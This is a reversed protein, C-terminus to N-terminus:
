KKEMSVLVAARLERYMMRKEWAALKRLVRALFVTGSNAQGTSMTMSMPPTAPPVRPRLMLLFSVLLPTSRSNKQSSMAMVPM